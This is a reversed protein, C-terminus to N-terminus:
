LLFVCNEAPFADLQGSHGYSWASFRRCELSVTYDKSYAVKEQAHRNRYPVSQEIEIPQRKLTADKLM